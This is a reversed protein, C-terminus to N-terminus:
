PSSCPCSMCLSPPEGPFCPPHCHCHHVTVQAVFARGLEPSPLPLPLRWEPRFAPSGM